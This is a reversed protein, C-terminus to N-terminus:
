DVWKWSRRCIPADYPIADLEKAKPIVRDPSVFNFEPQNDIFRAILWPCAVRDIKPREGTIWRM